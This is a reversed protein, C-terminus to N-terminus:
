KSEEVGEEKKCSNAHLLPITLFFILCLTDSCGISFRGLSEFCMYIAYSIFMAIYISKYKRDMKSKIMKIIVILYLAIFYLLEVIGGSVLFEVYTNHFQTVNYKAILEEAKFRGIGFITNAPSLMLEKEALDWFVTRGTFTKVSELRLLKKLLVPNVENLIAICAIGCVAAIIGLIIKTKIKIKNTFLFWLVLFLISMATGTRSFTVILNLGFIVLAIGLFVKYATKNEKQFLFITAIISTFLFLAFQNKHAFFSKCLYIKETTKVLNFHGLIDQFYLIMNQLCAILGMYLIGKMFTNIYKEEVKTNLVLVFLLIVNVFKCAINAFDLVEYNNNKYAIAQIVFSAITVILLVGFNIIVEKTFKIKKLYYLILIVCEIGMAVIMPILEVSFSKKTLINVKILPIFNILVVLFLILPLLNKSTIKEKIKEFM